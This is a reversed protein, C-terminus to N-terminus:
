RGTATAFVRDIKDHDIAADASRRPAGLFEAIDSAPAATATGCSEGAALECFHDLALPIRIDLVSPQGAGGTWFENRHSHAPEHQIVPRTWSSWSEAVDIRTESIPRLPTPLGDLATTRQLRMEREVRVDFGEERLRAALSANDTIVRHTYHSWLNPMEVPLGEGPQREPHEIAVAALSIQTPRVPGGGVSAGDCAFSWLATWAKGPVWGMPSYGPPVFRPQMRSADDFFVHVTAFCGRADLLPPTAATAAAPAALAVGLAAAIIIRRVLM